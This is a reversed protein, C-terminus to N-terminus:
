GAKKRTRLAIERFDSFYRSPRSDRNRSQSADLYPLPLSSNQVLNKTVHFTDYGQRALGDLDNRSCGMRHLGRIHSRGGLRTPTHLKRWSWSM